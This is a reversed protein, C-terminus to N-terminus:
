DDKGESAKLKQRMRASKNELKELSDATKAKIKQGVNSLKAGVKESVGGIKKGVQNAVKTTNKKLFLTAVAGLAAGAVFPLIPFM